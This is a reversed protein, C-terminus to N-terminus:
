AVALSQGPDRRMLPSTAMRGALIMVATVKAAATATVPQVVWADGWGDAAGAGGTLVV